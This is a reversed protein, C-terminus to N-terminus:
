KVFINQICEFIVPSIVSTIVGCFVLSLSSFAGEEPDRETCRATGLAHSICGMALGRFVKNRINIINLIKHGIVSGLIGVFIVCFVTMATNGGLNKSINIAIPTTVSKPLISAAIEPTAGMLFAISTGSIAAVTSGLLCIFFISKWYELIKNLQKYLPLALSVIAPELLYHLPMSGQFYQHYSINFEKLLLIVTVVTILLPNVIAIKWVTSIRRSYIFVLITLSLSWIYKGLLM